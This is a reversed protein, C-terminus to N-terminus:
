TARPFFNPLGQKLVDNALHILNLVLMNRGCLVSFYKIFAVVPNPYDIYTKCLSKDLLVRM